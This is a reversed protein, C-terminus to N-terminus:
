QPPSQRRAAGHRPIAQEQRHRSCYRPPRRDAERHATRPSAACRGRPTAATLSSLARALADVTAVSDSVDPIDRGALHGSGEPGFWDSPREGWWRRRRSDRHCNLLVKYVYSDPNEARRVKRWSVFCRLLASQALDEAEEPSCGLVVGARVLSPWRAAAFDPFGDDNVVVGRGRTRTATWGTVQSSSTAPEDTGGLGLKTHGTPRTPSSRGGRQIWRLGKQSRM